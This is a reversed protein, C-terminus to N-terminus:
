NEIVAELLPQLKHIWEADSLNFQFHDFATIFNRKMAEEGLNVIRKAKNSFHTLLMRWPKIKDYIDICQSLTTHCIDDEKRKADDSFTCEHILLDVNKTFNEVTLCPFTDGTYAIKWNESEILIGHSGTCHNTQYTYFRNIKMTKLMFDWMEKLKDDANKYLNEIFNKIEEESLLKDPVPNKEPKCYHPIPDVNLSESLLIKLREPYVLDSSKVLSLMMDNMNNPIIVYMIKDKASEGHKKAMVTDIEKILKIMGFIHDGHHHTIYICKMNELISEIIEMDEFHDLLQGYCGEGADLMIGCSNKYYEKPNYKSVKGDMAGPINMYISSVCRYKLPKQSATGLVIITPENEFKRSPVINQLSLRLSKLKEDSEIKSIITKYEKEDEPSPQHFGPLSSEKSVDFKPWFNYNRGVESFVIGLNRKKYEALVINRKAEDKLHIPKLLENPFARNNCEHLAKVFIQTYYRPAIDDNLEKCDMVHVSKQGIKAMYDMYDTNSLVEFPAIHYVLAVESCKVILEKNGLLSPIYECSPVFMVLAKGPKESPHFMSDPKVITNDPLTVDKGAILDKIQTVSLGMKKAEEGKFKPKGPLPDILYCAINRKGKADLLIPIMSVTKNVEYTSKSDEFETFVWGIEYNEFSLCKCFEKTGKPGYLNCKLFEKGKYADNATLYFGITGSTTEINADTLFINDFNLFKLKSVNAQRQYGDCMNIALIVKNDCMLILSPSLDRMANCVVKIWFKMCKNSYDLKYESLETLM